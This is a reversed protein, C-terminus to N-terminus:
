LHIMSVMNFRIQMCNVLIYTRHACIYANKMELLNGIILLSPIKCHLREILKHSVLRLDLYGQHVRTYSAVVNATPAKHVEHPYKPLMVDVPYPLIDNLSEGVSEIYTTFYEPQDNVTLNELIFM